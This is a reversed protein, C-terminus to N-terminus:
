DINEKKELAIMLEAYDKGDDPFTAIRCVMVIGRDLGEKAFFSKFAHRLRAKVKLADEKETDLLLVLIAGPTKISFDASRYLNNEMIEEFSKLIVAIKKGDLAPGSTKLEEFGVKIISLPEGLKTAAKLGDIAHEEFLAEASYKPLTFLFRTGQGVASEVWIDGKHLAVIGRSIALGLGTGKEGPGPKRGFQQFKGFVKPLDDKAIGRGTDRVYCEVRDNKDSLGVELFGKDTFKLSNGLLNTFVQILKDADAYVEIEEQSFVAKLELGKAKVQPQFTAVVGKVLGVLDTLERKVKLKGAEIKSIDLLNDIIRRLRDIDTRCISLVENQEKSIDGLIGDLVLSVAERMTTLPTRLEHSVVSIFETKLEDLQKLERNTKELEKYLTKIGENTKKSAWEKDELEKKLRAIEKAQDM